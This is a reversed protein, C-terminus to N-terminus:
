TEDRPGAATAGANAGAVYTQYANDIIDHAHPEREICRPRIGREAVSWDLYQRSIGCHRCISIELERGHAAAYTGRTVQRTLWRHMRITPMIKTM